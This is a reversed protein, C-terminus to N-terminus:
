LKRKGGCAVVIVSLDSDDNFTNPYDLVEVLHYNSVPQSCVIILLSYLFLIYAKITTKSKIM